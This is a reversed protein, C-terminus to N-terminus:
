MNQLLVLSSPESAFHFLWHKIPCGQVSHLRVECLCVM